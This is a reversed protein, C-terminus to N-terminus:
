PRSAGVEQRSRSIDSPDLAQKEHFSLTEADIYLRSFEDHLDTDNVQAIGTTCGYHYLVVYGRSWALDDIETGLHSRYSDMFLIRYDGSAEREVTWLDLWRSLFQLTQEERYSGKPGVAKSMNLDPPLRIGKLFRSTPKGKFLIEIPLRRPQLAAARNSTVTTFISVRERTAAHNVKLPVAPAGQIALTRTCKSGAENMHIGKQDIGYIDLDHGLTEIALARVVIDNRWM